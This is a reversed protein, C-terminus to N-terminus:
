PSSYVSSINLVASYAEEHCQSNAFKQCQCQDCAIHQRSMVEADFSGQTEPM